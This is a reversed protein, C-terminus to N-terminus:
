FILHLLVRVDRGPIPPAMNGPIVHGAHQGFYTPNTLEIPRPNMTSELYKSGSVM